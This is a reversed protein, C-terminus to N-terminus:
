IIKFVDSVVVLITIVLLVLMGTSQIKEELEKTLPKKFLRFLTMTLWRGGDLGPIPLLNMVALTLSILGVFFWFTTLDTSLLAPFIVGLMGIPGAVSDGAKALNEGGQQRVVPNLSLKQMLGGFFNTVLRGVGKLTELSFQATTVLASLPAKYWKTRIWEQQSPYIGAYGESSKKDDGRLRLSLALREGGREIIMEVESGAYQKTLNTLTQPSDITNGALSILKDESKIGATEAPGNSELQAVVVGSDVIEDDAFRFQSPVAVPMGTVALISFILWAILFNMSVGAFLIKTKALYSARGYDGLRNASDYEGQLKVYGGIPLANLKFWIGSKLKKKWLNPPFGIAYEEVVVKNRHAVWAHGLEHLAVLISLVALGVVVGLVVTM